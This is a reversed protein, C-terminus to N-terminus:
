SKSNIAKELKKEPAAGLELAKEYYPKAAAADKKDIAYFWALNLWGTAYDPASEVLKKELSIADDIQKNHALNVARGNLADIYGPDIALAKQFHEDALKFKKRNMALKGLYYHGASEDALGLDVLMASIAGDAASEFRARITQGGDRTWQEVADKEVTLRPSSLNPGLRKTPDSLKDGALIPEASVVISKRWLVNNDPLWTLNGDLKAVLTGEYGFLGYTMELDLLADHGKKALAARRSAQADRESNFGATSQLPAVRALGPRSEILRAELKKDFLAGADYDGLVNLVAAKLRANVVADVGAGVLAVSSSLIQVSQRVSSVAVIMEDNVTRASWAPAEASALTPPRDRGVTACGALLMISLAASIKSFM